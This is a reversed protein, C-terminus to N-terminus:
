GVLFWADAINVCKHSILWASFFLYAKSGNPSKRDKANHFKYWKIGRFRSAVGVAALIGWHGSTLAQVFEL